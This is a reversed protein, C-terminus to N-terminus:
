VAWRFRSLETKEHLVENMGQQNRFAVVDLKYTGNDTEDIDLHGLKFRRTAWNPWGIM